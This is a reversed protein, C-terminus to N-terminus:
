YYVLDNGPATFESIGVPLVVVEMESDVFVMYVDSRGSNHLILTYNEGPKLYPNLIATAPGIATLCIEPVYIGDIMVVIKEDDIYTKNQISYNCCPMDEQTKMILWFFEQEYYQDYRFNFLIKHNGLSNLGIELPEFSTEKLIKECSILTVMMLFVLTFRLIYKKKMFAEFSLVSPKKEATGRIQKVFNGFTIKRLKATLIRFEM